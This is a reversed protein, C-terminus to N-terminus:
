VKFSDFIFPPLDETKSFKYIRKSGALIIKLPRKFKKQYEAMVQRCAGCPTAPSECMVGHDSAVVALTDFAKDPYNAGAYFMATREACLGSPYAINEQNAGKIIMGDELRLAAGVQFKSYPSYSGEKAEIAALVLERDAPEMEELSSYEIYDISLHRNTM